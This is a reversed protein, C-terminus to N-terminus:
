PLITGNGSSSSYKGLIQRHGKLLKTGFDYNTATYTKSIFYETGKPQVKASSDGKTDIQLELDVQRRMVDSSGGGWTRATEVSFIGHSINVGVKIKPKEETILYILTVLWVATQHCVGNEITDIINIPSPQYGTTLYWNNFLSVSESAINQSTLNIGNVNAFAYKNKEKEYYTGVLRAGGLPFNREDEIRHERGMFTVRGRYRLEVKAEAEVKKTSVLLGLPDVFILPNHKVYAYLNISDLYGFPDRQLFRGKGADYYRARYYYLGAEEDLRRGTFLYPNKIASSSVPTGGGDTISVLGYADYRYREVVAATSDTVAVVSWLTNQHYYYVQGGRDMTLVEDVYNGYVYTAQTVAAVDQEEIVRADDYFYRTETLSGSPNAQKVVRRSLADYQYQGVVQSDSQRTISILRNELDYAYIYAEDESLNGNDDHSVPVGDIATIENVTNHTRNEAVGDTTKKDWNGLPDLDYQTQTSPLPVTSGVLDGVKFDILRYIDDYQYAESQVADHLKDEYQKNGEKDFAHGFGAILTAGAVHELHTIWNNANYLYNATVGNAYHRATVRNGLDYAYDAITTVGTKIEDLRQRVDLQETVVRGSPYTITRTRGPIDYVYNVMQGNQSTQTVRNAGDYNFTVLWGGREATLMRGALGYTFNDDPGVPYDRQMLFYLDNYVYSTTQGKQDLRTLLNGVGDYTFHRTGSDAYTEKILRNADDYNYLTTNGKADTIQILNGVDDYTFQTVNGIADTTSIRRNIEDYTDTTVNDERDTTTLRNGVADYSYRTDEGMADTVKVLRYLVDYEFTSGNGNGDTESLRNGEHDYSYSAVLGISDSVQIVRDIVDYTNTTINGNPATTTLVNGVGDYSTLTTDGAANTEEIPRNLADYVFSTMNGNPQTMTLRNSNADYGYQTVADSADIVDAVDGEKRIEKILRDLTDYKFYTVKGNADTQKTVRSSGKAPGPCVPCGGTNDYELLTVYGLADTTKIRRNLADYEYAVTHGNADTETLLNGADDYLRTTENALADTIKSLRNQSDYAYTTTHGNKDTASIRNDNNDYSQVMVQGLADITKVLRNREDYEYFTGNGNRDIVGVRNGNSDYFYQTVQGAPDTEKTLRNLSDYEYHTTHNNADTRSLLNGIVDYTMVTENGLADITKIVNGFSDYQHTTVNGNKDTKTLVNGHTDYTWEQTNGLPDTEKIRNGNADYDYITVRGNPDTIKIVQNFVPEYEYLTENGLADIMKTRNGLSDYEYQTTNGNADTTSALRLTAADYTHLTETGDPATIKTIYGNSDYGYHWQHGRGDTKTTTAPIYQRRHEQFLALENIAWNGVNKLSFFKNSSNDTISIPKGNSYAYSFKKGNKDIKDILQYKPNYNYKVHYGEPDTIQQLETGASDYELQTIRGLPDVVTKIKNNADYTFNIQRGYTDAITTLRGNTYTLTTTNGNRDVREVLQYLPSKAFYPSTDFRQYKERTGEKYTITFTGDPNKVMNEFYSETPKYQIPSTGPQRTFKTTRGQEDKRFMHGRQKFLFINYSHTWGFGLSTNVAAKELDANYSAYSLVLDLTNSKGGQCGSQTTLSTISYNSRLTGESYSITDDSSGSAECQPLGCTECPSSPDGTDPKALTTNPLILGLSFYSALVFLALSLTKDRKM